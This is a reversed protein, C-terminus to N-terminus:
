GLYKSTEYLTGSVQTPSIEYFLLKFGKWTGTKDTTLEMWLKKGISTFSRLKIDGTLHGIVNRGIVDGNGIELFDFGREISFEVIRVVIIETGIFTWTCELNSPYTAPYSPSTFNVSEQLYINRAGCKGSILPLYSLLSIKILCNCACTYLLGQLTCEQTSSGGM